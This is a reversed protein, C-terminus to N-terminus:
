GSGFLFNYYSFDYNSFQIEVGDCHKIKSLSFHSSIIAINFTKYVVCISDYLKTKFYSPLWRNNFNANLQRFHLKVTSVFLM